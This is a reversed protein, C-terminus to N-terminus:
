RGRTCRDGHFDPWGIDKRIDDPLSYMFHAMRFEDHMAKLRGAYSRVTHLFKPATPHM